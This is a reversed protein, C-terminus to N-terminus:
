GEESNTSRVLQQVFARADAWDRRTPWNAGLCSARTVEIVLDASVDVALMGRATLVTYRTSGDLHQQTDILEM